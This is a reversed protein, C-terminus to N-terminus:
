TRRIRYYGLNSMHQFRKAGAADYEPVAIARHGVFVLHAGQAEHALIDYGCDALYALLQLQEARELNVRGGALGYLLFLRGLCDGVLGYIDM